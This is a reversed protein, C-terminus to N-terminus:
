SRTEAEAAHWANPRDLKGNDEEAWEQRNSAEGGRM